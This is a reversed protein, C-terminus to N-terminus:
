FDDPASGDDRVCLMQFTAFSVNDSVFRVRGDGLLVHSGGTHPSQLPLNVGLDADLGPPRGVFTRTGPQFQITTLNHQRDYAFQNSGQGMPWGFGTTGGGSRCDWRSYGASADRCWDSQEGFALVNSLGDSMHRMSTWFISSNGPSSDYSGQIYFGGKGFQGHSNSLGRAETFSGFTSNITGAIGVYNALQVGASANPRPPGFIPLPSSPCSLVSLTKGNVLAANAANQDVWGTHSSTMDWAIYMSSQDIYPLLGVFLSNGWANNNPALNANCGLQFGQFVDHYNHIALGLQRLNNKCQTRRAAERAQQIAPLLLGILVAIIAIVVLLEILSFGKPAIRLQNGFPLSRPRLTWHSSRSRQVPIRTALIDRVGAEM